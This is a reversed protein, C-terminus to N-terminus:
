RPEKRRTGRFLEALTPRREPKPKPRLSRQHARVPVKRPQQPKSM